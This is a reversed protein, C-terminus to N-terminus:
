EIGERRLRRREKQGEYKRRVKGIENTETENHNRRRKESDQRLVNEPTFLDVRNRVGKMNWANHSIINGYFFIAQGQQISIRQQIEWLLLDGGEWEGYPM